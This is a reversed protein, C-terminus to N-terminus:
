GTAVRRVADAFQEGNFVRDKLLYGVGGSGDALLERAYLREVHQSLVLIPLGPVRERAELAVRLGEDTYTPPLRVVVVAGDPRGAPLAPLPPPGSEGEAAAGFGHARLLHVLGGPLLHHVVALVVRMAAGRGPPGAGALRRLRAARCRAPDDRRHGAVPVTGGRAARPVVVERDGRDAQVGDARVGAPGPPDLGPRRVRRARDGAPHAAAAAARAAGAAARDRCHHP